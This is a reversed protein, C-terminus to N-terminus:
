AFILIPVSKTGFRPMDGALVNSISRILQIMVLISLPPLATRKENTRIVQTDARAFETVNVPESEYPLAADAVKLKLEPVRVIASALLACYSAIFGVSMSVAKNKLMPPTVSVGTLAM